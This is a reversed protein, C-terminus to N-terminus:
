PRKWTDADFATVTDISQVTISFRSADRPFVMSAQAPLRSGNSLQVDVAGMIRGDQRVEAQFRSPAAPTWIFDSVQHAELYRWARWNTTALAFVEAGDAPKVAVGLAAWFLPVIPLLNRVDEEPESWVATGGIVLAAGSRGFPGRYDFRLTDPPAFRVVARGASRGRQTEYRWRLDYQLPHRPIGEVIWPMVDEPSAPELGVPAISQLGGVCGALVAAVTLSALAYYSSRGSRDLSFAQRMLM